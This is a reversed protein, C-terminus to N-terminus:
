EFCVLTKNMQSILVQGNAVIMGDFVPPAALEVTAKRDGTATDILWLSGGLEGNWAAQQKQLRPQTDKATFLGYLGQENVLDPPGAALLTDGALVMGRVMIEPDKQQWNYRLLTHKSDPFKASHKWDAVDPNKERWEEKLKRNVDLQNIYTRYDVFKDHAAKYEPSKKGHEKQADKAAKKLQDFKQQQKSGM